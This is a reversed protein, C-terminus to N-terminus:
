SVFVRDGVAVSGTRTVTAYVGACNENLRVAAKMMRPDQVATVPDLNLMVCRIDRMWVSVAPATEADGFRVTKGVWEDEPFPQGNPGEILFNPRFRRVDSSVGAAESVSDIAASTIISVSAEDFIGNKIEMLDVPAGHIKELEARLSEGRIELEQGAPTRVLSPLKEGEACFPRYTVLAPLKGAQLFPFDSHIGRRVFALRRDGDIGHWGLNISELREGAMSKVPYRYIERIRGVENMAPSPIPPAALNGPDYRARSGPESTTVRPAHNSDTPRKRLSIKQSRLAM